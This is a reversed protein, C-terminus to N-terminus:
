YNVKLTLMYEAPPLVTRINAFGDNYIGSVNDERDFINKGTLALQWRGDAQGLGIFANTRAYSAIELANTAESFYSDSFTLDAGYIFNLDQNLAITYDFGLKGSYKPNSPLEKAGSLVAAASPDITGFDSEMYGLIAFLNLSDTPSWSIEAELGYVDVEGVNRIPFSGGTIATQQLGDYMAYFAALNLRLTNDLWDSKMGLEVSDVTQPQYAVGACNDTLNGFCLSQFGGAQFGRGYTLYVLMSDSAQFNLSVRPTFEDFSEKLAVSAGPAPACLFGTTCTNTYEKRDETWRMGAVLSWQDNFRWTGEAFVAYSDTDSTVAESFAPGGLSGAYVQRGEENLFYGGVLWELQEGFASGLLQFEQSWQKMRSDSTVLLGGVGPPLPGFGDPPPPSDFGGGALDFGFRDKINAFASISRLTVAGFNYSWDLTVGAQDSDGFNAGEPSFNDYFGGAPSGPRKDGSTVGTNSSFPRYPVGNYGDNEIDVAWATLVADLNETGYWHLKARAAKDTYEGVDTGLAPNPQWGEGRDHYLVAISGALSGEEIPGGVSGSLKLTQYNGYGISANAWPEDGPTRTVIKIAGALTNRGYLTAQPGRLVEIREIDALDLNASALRGRYVDDEYIGVPSESVNFGPNQVSAGRAHVQIAQAGATVTYTQLNPVNDGIDKVVNIQLKEVQDARFASVAVPVTQLAQERRQATVVIEELQAFSVGTTAALTATAIVLRTGTRM